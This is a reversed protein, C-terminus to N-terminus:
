ALAPEPDRLHYSFPSEAGHVGAPGCTNQNVSTERLSLTHTVDLHQSCLAAMMIDEGNSEVFSGGTIQYAIFQGL